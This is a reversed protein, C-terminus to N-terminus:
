EFVILPVCFNGPEINDWSSCGLLELADSREQPTLLPKENEYLHQLSSQKHLTALSVCSTAKSHMGIRFSM